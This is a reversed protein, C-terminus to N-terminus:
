NKTKLPHLEFKRVFYEFGESQLLIKGAAPFVDYAKNVTVGNVIVTITNKECVCEMRTWEGLKSEVDDKGYTDLDEKFFPQHKSWWLQRGTFVTKIGGEKWRPKKDPGIEIDSTITVPTTVGKDDKGQIGILDGCCGQALQCEICSMWVGSAGGDPGIANHLIGANRVYKGGDTKTGWKYEVVVRYDRYDNKTAMYGFGDGTIHLQGDTVRFVKRPDESKTDRLWTTFGSLDKGNFLSSAEKPAVPDAASAPLAFALAVLAFGLRTMSLDGAPEAIIGRDVVRQGSVNAFQSQAARRARICKCFM